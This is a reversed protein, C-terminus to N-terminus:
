SRFKLQTFASKEMRYGLFKGVAPVSYYWELATSHLNEGESGSRRKKGSADTSSCDRRPGVDTSHRISAFTLRFRLCQTRGSRRFAPLGNGLIGLRHPM